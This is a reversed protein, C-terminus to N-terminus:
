LSGAALLATALVLLMMSARLRRSKSRILRASTEIMEVTTDLVHLRTFSANARLYRDRLVRAELVPVARPMFTWMALAAAIAATVTGAISLSSAERTGLAVVAGAFGLVIGAKTDLSEVHRLQAEREALVLSSITDLSPLTQSM